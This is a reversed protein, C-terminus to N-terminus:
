LATLTGRAERVQNATYRVHTPPRGGALFTVEFRVADAAAGAVAAVAARTGNTYTLGGDASADFDSTEASHGCCLACAQTGDQYLPTSGGAFRVTVIYSGAAAGAAATAAVARPGEVAAAAAAAAAAGAGAAAAAAAAATDSGIMADGAAGGGIGAIGGVGLLRRLQQAVRECIRGKRVNHVTGFPCDATAVTGFSCGLDYTPVACASPVGTLGGAQALRMTFVGPVCNRYQAKPNPYTSDCDGLYGPLQIAAFVFSSNFDRRWSRVLEREM